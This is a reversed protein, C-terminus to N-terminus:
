DLGALSSQMLHLLEAAKAAKVQDSYVGYHGGTSQAAAIADRDSMVRNGSVTPILMEGEPVGVGITRVTATGEQSPVMGRLYFPSLTGRVVPSTDEPPGQVPLPM